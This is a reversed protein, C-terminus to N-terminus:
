ILDISPQIDIFIRTPSVLYGVRCVFGSAPATQTLIGNTSLFLSLGSSLDWRWNSDELVGFSRVPVPGGTLASTLTMGYVQGAHSATGHDAHVVRGQSNMAVVRHGDLAEGAVCANVAADEAATLQETVIERVQAVTLFTKAAKPISDLHFSIM